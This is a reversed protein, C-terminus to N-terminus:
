ETEAVPLAIVFLRGWSKNGNADICTQLTIHPEGTYMQQFVETASFVRKSGLDVFRSGTKNPELAQFRYIANVTYRHIQGNKYTVQIEQGVDLNSFLSGALDNHAILGVNGYKQALRFETVMNRKSSVYYPNDEPQQVVDYSFLNPVTVRQVWRNEEWVVPQIPRDAPIKVLPEKKVEEHQSTLFVIQNEIGLKGPNQAFFQSTGGHMNPSFPVFSFLVILGIFSFGRPYKLVGAM